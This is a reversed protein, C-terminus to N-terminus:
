APLLLLQDEWKYYWIRCYSCVLRPHVFSHPKSVTGPRGHGVAAAPDVVMLRM